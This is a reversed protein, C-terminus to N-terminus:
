NVKLNFMKDDTCLLDAASTSLAGIANMIHKCADPLQLFIKSTLSYYYFFFIKVRLRVLNKRRFAENILEQTNRQVRTNVLVIRNLHIKHTLNQIENNRFLLTGGYTCITNDIGSPNGHFIKESQFAWKNILDLDLDANYM